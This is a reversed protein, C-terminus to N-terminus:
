AYERHMHGKLEAVGNWVEGLVRLQSGDIEVVKCLAAPHHQKELPLGPDFPKEKTFVHTRLAKTTPVLNRIHVAQTDAYAFFEPGMGAANRM